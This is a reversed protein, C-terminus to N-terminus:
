IIVNLWIIQKPIDNVTLPSIHIDASKPLSILEDCHISSDHKLGEDIGILVQTSLGDHASYVTSVAEVAPFDNRLAEALPDPTTATKEIGQPTKGISYVRYISNANKHFSDYSSENLFFSFVLIFCAIGVALGSINIFSIIKYKIM